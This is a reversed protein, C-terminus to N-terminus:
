VRMCRESNQVVTSLRDWTRGQSRFHCINLTQDMAVEDDDRLKLTIEETDPTVSGGGCVTRHAVWGEPMTTKLNELYDGMESAPLKFSVPQTNKKM